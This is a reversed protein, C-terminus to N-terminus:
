SARSTLLSYTSHFFALDTDREERSSDVVPHQQSQRMTARRRRDLSAAHHPRSTVLVRCCPVMMVTKGKLIGRWVGELAVPFEVMGGCLFPIDAAAVAVAVFFLVWLSLLLLM